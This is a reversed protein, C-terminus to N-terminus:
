DPPLLLYISTITWESTPWLSYLSLLHLVSKLNFILSLCFVSKLSSYLTKSSSPEMLHFCRTFSALAGVKGTMANRFSEDTVVHWKGAPLEVWEICILVNKATFVDLGSNRWALPWFSLVIWVIFCITPLACSSLLSGYIARSCYRLAGTDPKDQEGAWNSKHSCLGCGVRKM